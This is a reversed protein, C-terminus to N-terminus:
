KKKRKKKKKKCGKKKKKKKKAVAASKKKKKKKKPKKCVTAPNGGGGPPQTGAAPKGIRHGFIEIEDNTAALGDASWVVLYENPVSGYASAAVPVFTNEVDGADRSADGDNGVRSIRFDGGLDGGTASLRQGQMEFEGAAQPEPDGTWSVLYENAAPSYAATQFFGGRAASGDVGTTSIRFDDAGTEDASATLRQGFVETESDVGGHDAYWTVLWENPGSGYVVKPTLGARVVGAPNVTSVRTDSGVEAGSDSVRQVSIEYENDPLGVVGDGTWGVLYEDPGAGYAVTAAVPQRNAGADAADSIQIDTADPTEDGDRNLRQGFIEMAAAGTINGAEWVVFYEGDNPNYTVAPDDTGQTTDMAAGTTSMTFNGDIDGGTASLLQGQIEFKQDTVPDSRWTVLYENDTGNYAVAPSTADRTADGGTESIQFDGGLEAGSASIRQGYIEFKDETAGGDAQWVVLYENAAPNYAIAPETADRSATGDTFANSVRFDAGLPEYAQAATAVVALLLATASSAGILGRGAGRRIV